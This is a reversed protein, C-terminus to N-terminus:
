CSVYKAWEDLKIRSKRYHFDAGGLLYAKILPLPDSSCVSERRLAFASTSPNNPGRLGSYVFRFRKAAIQLAQISFSGLDGFTYAFHDISCGLRNSLLNASGCIQQQLIKIDKLESLRAHNLTHCGITHGADILAAADTWSMNFWHDPILHESLNPYINRVIFNKAETNCEISLFEPILFFIAKINLPALIKDAVIRNTAFGDDFTLLLSDRELERSGYQIQEFESPTLFCWSRSLEVLQEKFRDFEVHAIDHYLLIRLEPDNKCFARRVVRRANLLSTCNALIRHHTKM